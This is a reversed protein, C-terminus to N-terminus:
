NLFSIDTDFSVNYLSVTIPAPLYSLMITETYTQSAGYPNTCYHVFYLLSACVMLSIALSQINKKFRDSKWLRLVAQLSLFLETGHL